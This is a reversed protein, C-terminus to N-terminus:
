RRRKIVYANIGTAAEFTVGGKGQDERIKPPPKLNINQRLKPFM